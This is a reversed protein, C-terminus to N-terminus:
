QANDGADDTSQPPTRDADSLQTKLIAPEIDLDKEHNADIASHVSHPPNKADQELRQFTTLASNQPHPRSLRLM